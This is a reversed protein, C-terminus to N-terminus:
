AAYERLRPRIGFLALLAVLLAAIPGLTKATGLV